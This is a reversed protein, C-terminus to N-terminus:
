RNVLHKRGYQELARAAAEAVSADPDSRLTALSEAMNDNTYFPAALAAERRTTPDADDLALLLGQVLSTRPRSALGRLAVVRVFTDRDGVAQLLVPIASVSKMNSLAVVVEPRGVGDVQTLFGRLEGAAIDGDIRGIAIAFYDRLYVIASRRWAAALVPIASEDGISGLALAAFPSVTDQREILRELVAVAARDAFAALASTAHLRVTSSPDHEVLRILPRGAAHHQHQILGLIAASRVEESDDDLLQQLRDAAAAGPIVKLSDAAATRVADSPDNSLLMITPLAEVGLAEAMLFAAQARWTAAPDAVTPRLIEVLAAQDRAMLGHAAADRVRWHPDAMARLLDPISAADAIRGLAEAAAARVAPEHDDGLSQRLPDLGDAHGIQGLAAAAHERVIDAPDDLATILASVADPSRLTGLARAAPWRLNRYNTQDQLITVLETVATKGGIKAIAEVAPQFVMDYTKGLYAQVLPAIAAPDRLEGLAEAAATRLDEVASSLAPVVMRVGQPLRAAAVFRIARYAVVIDASVPLSAIRTALAVALAPQTAILETAVRLILEEPETAATELHSAVDAALQHIHAALDGRTFRMARARLRLVTLDLSDPLEALASFAKEPAALLGITMAAFDVDSDTTATVIDIVTQIPAAGRAVSRAALYETLSLHVFGFTPETGAQRAVLPTALAVDVIGTADGAEAALRQQVAQAFEARSFSQARQAHM